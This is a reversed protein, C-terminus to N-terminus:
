KSKPFARERAREADQLNTNSFQRNEIKRVNELSENTVARANDSRNQATNYNERSLNVEARKQNEAGALANIEGNVVNAQNTLQNVDEQEREIKRNFNWGGCSNFIGGAAFLLIILLVVPLIIKWYAAGFFILSGLWLKLKYLFDNM